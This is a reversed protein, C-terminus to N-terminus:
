GEFSALTRTVTEEEGTIKAKINGQGDLYIVAQGSPPDDPTTGSALQIPKNFTIKDSAFEATVGEGSVGSTSNNARIEVKGNAARNTIAVKNSGPFLMAYRFSGGTDKYTIGENNGGAHAIFQIQAGASTMQLNDKIGVDDSYLELQANGGTGLTITDTGFTIKTNTDGTHIINGAVNIDTFSSGGGASAVAEDVYQKTAAHLDNTPDGTLTLEGTMTDGSRAVGGIDSLLQAGTRYYIRNGSDIVLFKDLDVTSNTVTDVSLHGSIDANGDIDLSDGKVEGTVDIGTNTTSLKLNHNYYLFSGGGDTFQAMANGDTDQIYLGSGNTQLYLSGTGVDRIYSHNGSHYIEFDNGDGLKIKKQDALLIDGAFTADGGSAITLRTGSLGHEILELKSNVGVETAKFAWGRNAYSANKVGLFLASTGSNEFISLTGVGATQGSGGTDDGTYSGLTVDGAFTANGNAEIDLSVGAANKFRLKQVGADGVQLSNTGTSAVARQTSGSLALYIDGGNVTVDGAFTANQSSNIELAQTANTYFKFKNDSNTYIIRGKYDTSSNSFDIFSGTSGNLQMQAYNSSYALQVGNTNSISGGNVLLNTATIQGAFTSTGTSITTTAAVNGNTDSKKLKWTTDSGNYSSLLEAYEFTNWSTEFAVSHIYNGGKIKMRSNGAANFSTLTTRATSNNGTDGLQLGDNHHVFVDATFTTNSTVSGGIALNGSIDANGNIDLATAEVEGSVIIPKSFSVTGSNLQIKNSSDNNSWIPTGDNKTGFYSDRIGDSGKFQIYNWDSTDGESPVVLDLRNDATTNITLTGTMTDGSKAVKGAISSTVTTSFSADDGLAAALENLTNLAGPASDVLNSVATSVFATTAIQTTNTGASATPAAPTGTFTPSAIKGYRSDGFSKSVISQWEQPTSNPAGKYRYYLKDTNNESGCSVMQFGYGGSDEVITFGTSHSTTPGNASGQFRYGGRVFNDDYSGSGTIVSFSAFSYKDHIGASTMIHNDNDTFEGSDDIGTITNGDMVIGGLSLNGTIDANSDVTVTGNFTTTTGDFVVTEVGDNPMIKFQSGVSLLRTYKSSDAIRIEGISDSSTFTAILNTTSSNVNLTNNITTSGNLTLNGSGFVVANGLENIRLPKSSHSQIWSYTSNGGFRLSTDGSDDRIDLVGSASASAPGTITVPDNFQSSNTVTLTGSIAANGSIDANGNIDLSTGEIETGQIKGTSTIAGSAITGINSLNTVVESGSADRVFTDLYATQAKNLQTIKNQLQLLPTTVSSTASVGMFYASNFRLNSSGLNFNGDLSPRLSTYFTANSSTLLFYTSSADSNRFNHASGDIFLQNNPSKIHVYSADAQLLLHNSGRLNSGGSLSLTRSSAANNNTIDGEFTSNQSAHITLATTDDTKFVIQNDTSFDITNHADRGIGGGSTYIWSNFYAAGADSMDLTLATINVSTSNGANDNGQFVIDANEAKQRFTYNGTKNDLFLGGGTHQFQADVDTGFQLENTDGLKFHQNHTTGSNGLVLKQNGGVVFQLNNPANEKIYTDGGGDFYLHKTAAIEVDSSISVDGTGNPQLIIDANTASSTLRLNNSFSSIRGYETGSTKLVLDGGGADLRIDDPADITFDGSGSQTLTVAHSGDGTISLNGANIFLNAVGSINNDGMAIAGSMTGGALALKTAISNTVTTSFNVDDGLAAALENLTNLTGPASDVLNSIQLDVYSKTTFDNTGTPTSGSVRSNFAVKANDTSVTHSGLVLNGAVSVNSAFNTVPAIEVTQASGDLRIYTSIGGDGDDCQLLIDKGTEGNKIYFDESSTHLNITRNTNFHVIHGSRFRSTSSTNTIDFNNFFAEGTSQLTGNVSFTKSPNATGVGVKGDNLVRIRETGATYLGIVGTDNAKLFLQNNADGSIVVNGNNLFLQNTTQGGGRIGVNGGVDLTYVPSTQNVGLKGVFNADKSNKLTFASEYASGNWTFLEFGGDTSNTGGYLKLEGNSEKMIALQNGFRINDGLDLKLDGGITLTGSIEANGVVDLKASPATTGIGVDGDTDITIGNNLSDAAYLKLKQGVGSGIGIESSGPDYVNFTNTGTVRFLYGSSGGVVHLKTAPNTTGIGLGTNNLRMKEATSINFGLYSDAASQLTVNSANSYLKGGSQLKFHTGASVQGSFTGTGDSAKLTVAATENDYLALLGKHTTNGYNLAVGNAHNANIHLHGGGQNITSSRGHSSELKINCESDYLHLKATPSSTGIGVDGNEIYHITSAKLTAASSLQKVEFKDIKWTNTLDHGGGDIAGIGMGFKHFTGGNGDNTFDTVPYSGRFAQFGNSDIDWVMITNDIFRLKLSTALNDSTSNMVGYNFNSVVDSHTGNEVKRVKAYSSYSASWQLYFFNNADKYKFIIHFVDDGSDRRLFDVKIEYDASTPLTDCVYILGDSSDSISTQAIGGGGVVNWVAGAGNRSDFVKTWGAGTDPTHSDLATTNTETFTDSFIVTGGLNFLELDANGTVRLFKGVSLSGSHTFTQAKSIIDVIGTHDESNGDTQTRTGINFCVKAGSRPRAFNLNHYYQTSQDTGNAGWYVNTAMDMLVEGTYSTGDLINVTGGNTHTINSTGYSSFTSFTALTNSFIAPKFVTIGGAVNLDGAIGVGTKFGTSSNNTNSFVLGSFNYQRVSDGSSSVTFALGQDEGVYLGGIEGQQVSTRPGTAGAYTATTINFPTSLNLQHITDFTADPIWVKTGDESVWIDEASGIDGTITGGSLSDFNFFDILSFSNGVSITSVDWATSLTYQQITDMTHSVVWFMTGDRKFNIGHPNQYTAGGSVTLSQERTYSATSIDWATTMTYQIVQDATHGVIYVELGNPSIYMGYPNSESAPSDQLGSLQDSDGTHSATALDWATSLTYEDIDDGSRGLVYMKTGDDKFFIAEPSTDQSGVSFLKNKNLQWTSIDCSDSSLTTTSVSGVVDIDSLFKQAM